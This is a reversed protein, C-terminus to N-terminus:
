LATAIKDRRALADALTVYYGDEGEVEWHYVEISEPAFDESDVYDDYYDESYDESERERAFIVVDGFQAYIATNGWGGPGGSLTGIVGDLTIPINKLEEHYIQDLQEASPEGVIRKM